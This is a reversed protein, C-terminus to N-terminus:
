KSAEEKPAHLACRHGSIHMNADCYVFVVASRKCGEHSCLVNIYRSQAAPRICIEGTNPPNLIERERATLAM